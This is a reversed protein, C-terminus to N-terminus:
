AEVIFYLTNSDYAGLADYQAQTGSWFDKTAISGFTTPLAIPVYADSAANRYGLVVRNYALFNSASGTSVSAKAVTLVANNAESLDVYAFENDSLTISSAVITNQIALGDERAFLIRLTGAWSLEGTTNNYSVVGDCHVIVNKLYTIAVVAADIQAGTHISHYAM